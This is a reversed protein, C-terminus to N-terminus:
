SFAPKNNIGIVSTRPIFLRDGEDIGRTHFGFECGGGISCCTTLVDYDSTVIAIRVACSWESCGRGGRRM